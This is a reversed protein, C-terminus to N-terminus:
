LGWEDKLKRLIGKNELETLAANIKELIPDGKQVAIAIKSDNIDQMPIVSMNAFDPNLKFLYNATSSDLIIGDIKKDKLADFLDSSLDMSVVKIELDQKLIWQHMLTGTEVGINMGKKIPEDKDSDGNIMIAFSSTYYPISFDVLQERDPTQSIGAVGVKIEGHELSPIISHFSMNKIVVEMNLKKSIANILDIEFGVIAGDKKFEFPFYNLSTGVVLKKVSDLDEYESNDENTDTANTNQEIREQPKIQQLADKQTDNKEDCGTLLLLCSCISLFYSLKSKFM